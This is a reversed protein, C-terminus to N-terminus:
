RIAKSISPSPHDLFYRRRPNRGLLSVTCHFLIPILDAKADYPACRVMDHFRVYFILLGEVKKRGGGQLETGKVAFFFVVISTENM